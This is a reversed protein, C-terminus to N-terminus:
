RCAACAAGIRTALSSRRRASSRRRKFAEKSLPQEEEQQQQQQQVVIVVPQKPATITQSAGLVKKTLFPLLRKTLGATLILPQIMMPWPVVGAPGHTFQLWLDREVRFLYIFAIAVHYRKCITQVTEKSVRNRSYLYYFMFGMQVCSICFSAEKTYRDMVMPFAETMNAITGNCLISIGFAMPTMGYVLWLHKGYEQILHYAFASGGLLAMALGNSFATNELLSTPAYNMVLPVVSFLLMAVVGRGQNFRQLVQPTFGNEQLTTTSLRWSQVKKWYFVAIIACAVFNARHFIPEITSETISGQNGLLVRNVFVLNGLLLAKTSLIGHLLGHFTKIYRKNVVGLFKSSSANDINKNSSSM